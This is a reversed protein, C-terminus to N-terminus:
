PFSENDTERIYPTVLTTVEQRHHPASRPPEREGYKEGIHEEEEKWKAMLRGAGEMVANLLVVRGRKVTGDLEHTM